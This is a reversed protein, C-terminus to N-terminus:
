WGACSAGARPRTTRRTSSTCSRRTARTPTATSRRRPRTGLVAQRGGPNTGALILHRVREPHGVALRQAVFGGMSWGLVNAREVGIADM